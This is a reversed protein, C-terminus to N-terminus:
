RNIGFARTPVKGLRHTTRNTNTQRKTEARAPLLLLTGEINTPDLDKFLRIVAEIGTYETAHVGANICLTLGPKLGNVIMLPILVARQRPPGIVTKYQYTRLTTADEVKLYDFWKTSPEVSEDGITFPGM